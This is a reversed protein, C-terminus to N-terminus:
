VYIVNNTSGLPSVEMPAAPDAMWKGDVIFKYQHKGPALKISKTFQGSRKAMPESQPDWGNFDGALCVKQAEPEARWKFTTTVPGKPPTKKAAPSSEKMSKEMKVVKADARHADDPPLLPATAVPGKHEESSFKEKIATIAMQADRGRASVFLCAGRGAGLTLIGLLSKASAIRKGCKVVIESEFMNAVGVLLGAPRMHWGLTNQLSLVTSSEESQSM